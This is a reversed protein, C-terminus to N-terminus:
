HTERDRPRNVRRADTILTVGKRPVERVGDKTVIAITKRHKQIEDGQFQEVFGNKFRQILTFM